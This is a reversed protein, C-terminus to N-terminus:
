SKEPPLLAFLGITIGDPFLFCIASELSPMTPAPPRSLTRSDGYTRREALRPDFSILSAPSQREDIVWVGGDEAFKITGCVHSRVNSTATVVAAVKTFETALKHLLDSADQPTIDSGKGRSSM